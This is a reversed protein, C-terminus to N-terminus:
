DWLNSDKLAKIKKVITSQDVKLAQAMKRTTQFEKYARKLLQREVEMVAKKLPVIESMRISVSTQRHAIVDRVSDSDIVEKSSTIVLREITNELERVNGPWEYDGLIEYTLASLKKAMGYKVNAKNLFYNIFMPIDEQRERLPPIYIPVVNLRYFLDERFHGERVQRVLDKNTASIIRTNLRTPSDDGIRFIENNELVHLLKVQMEMSIESIEDLFITGKEAVEFYGRKGKDNAGTFAGKVYGFLESELLDYPIAGCNVQIFPGNRRDSMLHITDAIFGKGVGTDGLLLVTADVGSVHRVVDFVKAMVQSNTKVFGREPLKTRLLENRFWDLTELTDELKLNLKEIKTIDQSINLIRTLEGNEDFMPLGTVMLRKGAGTDQVITEKKRSKLVLATISPKLIGESELDKVNRGVIKDSSIGFVKQSNKSSMLLVGNGDAITIQDFSNELIKQLDEYSQKYYQLEDKVEQSLNEYGIM